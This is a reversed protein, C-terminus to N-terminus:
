DKTIVRLITDAINSMNFTPPTGEFDPNLTM